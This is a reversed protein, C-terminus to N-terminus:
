SMGRMESVTLLLPWVVIPEFALTALILVILNGFTTHLFHDIGDGAIRTASKVPQATDVGRQSLRRIRRAIEFDFRNGCGTVFLVLVGSERVAITITAARGLFDQVQKESDRQVYQNLRAVPVHPM